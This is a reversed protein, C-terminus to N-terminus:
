KNIDLRSTEPYITDNDTLFIYEEVRKVLQYRESRYHQDKEPLLCLKRLSPHCKANSTYIRDSVDSLVISEKDSHMNKSKSKKTPATM